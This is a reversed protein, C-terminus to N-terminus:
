QDADSTSAIEPILVQAAPFLKQLALSFPFSPQFIITRVGLKAFLSQTRSRAAMTLVVPIIPRPAFQQYDASSPYQNCYDLVQGYAGGTAVLKGEVIWVEAPTAVRLDAWDNWVGFAMQQKPTLPVGAYVLPQAGVNVRTKSKWEAPLTAVWEAVLQAEGQSNIQKRPM